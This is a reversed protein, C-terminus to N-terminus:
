SVNVADALSPLHYLECKKAETGNATSIQCFTVWTLVKQGM